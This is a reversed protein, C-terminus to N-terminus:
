SKWKGDDKREREGEGEGREREKEQEGLEEKGRAM